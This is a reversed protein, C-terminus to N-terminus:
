EETLDNPIHLVACGIHSSNNMDGNWYGCRAMVNTAEDYAAIEIDNGNYLRSM